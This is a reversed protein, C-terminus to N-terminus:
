SSTAGPKEEDESPEGKGVEAAEPIIAVQRKPDNQFQSGDHHTRFCGSPIYSVAKALEFTSPM